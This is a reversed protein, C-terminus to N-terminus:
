GPLVVFPMVLLGVQAITALGALLLVPLGNKPLAQWRSRAEADGNDRLYASGVAVM